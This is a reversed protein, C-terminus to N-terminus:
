WARIPAEGDPKVIPTTAGSASSPTLAPRGGRSRCPPAAGELVGTVGGNRHLQRVGHLRPSRQHRQEVRLRACEVPRPQLCSPILVALVGEVTELQASEQGAGDVHLGLPHAAHDDVGVPIEEGADVRQGRGDAGFGGITEFVSGGLRHHLGPVAHAGSASEGAGEVQRAQGGDRDGAAEGVVAEGDAQLEDGAGEGFGQQKLDRVRQLSLDPLEASRRRGVGSVSPGLLNEDVIKWCSDKRVVLGDRFEWLDCGRVAIRQGTTTTGTLLWEPGGRDGCVWHRDAGYHVDPIGAIRAALGERVAAKGEFRSGWVNPGEPRPDLTADEALFASIADLDHRNFADLIAELTAVTVATCGCRAGRGAGTSATEGLRTMTRAIRGGDLWRVPTSRNVGTERNRVTNVM